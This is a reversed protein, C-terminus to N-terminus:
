NLRPPLCLLPLLHFPPFPSFDEGRESVLQWLAWFPCRLALPGHSYHGAGSHQRSSTAHEFPALKSDPAASVASKSYLFELYNGHRIWLAQSSRENLARCPNPDLTKFSGRWFSGAQGGLDKPTPRRTQTSSCLSGGEWHQCRLLLMGEGLLSAQGWRQKRKSFMYLCHQKLFSKVTGWLGKNTFAAM